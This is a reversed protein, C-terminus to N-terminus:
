EAIIDRDFSSFDEEVRWIRLQMDEPHDLLEDMGQASRSGGLRLPM